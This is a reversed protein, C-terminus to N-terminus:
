LRMKRRCQCVYSYVGSHRALHFNHPFLCHSCYNSTFREMYLTQFSTRSFLNLEAKISLGLTKDVKCLPSKPYSTDVKVNDPSRLSYGHLLRDVPQYSLAISLMCIYVSEGGM